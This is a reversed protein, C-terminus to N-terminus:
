VCKRGPSLQPSGSNGSPTSASPLALGPIKCPTDNGASVAIKTAGEPPSEAAAERGTEDTRVASKSSDKLGPTAAGAADTAWNGFSFSAQASQQGAALSTRRQNGQCQPVRHGKWSSVGVGGWGGGQVPHQGRPGAKSAPADVERFGLGAELAAVHCVYSDGRSHTESANLVHRVLQQCPLPMRRRALYAASARGQSSLARPQSAM